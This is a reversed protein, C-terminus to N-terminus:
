RKKYELANRISDALERKKIPKMLYDKIGMAKAEDSTILESYGTCLIVPLDPRIEMLKLALRDGTLQPMTQDTIVLDFFDPQAKFLEFAKVSSMETVVEYGLSQIMLKSLKVMQEEDDVFLVRESGRKIDSDHITESLEECEYKPFLVTFTTGEGVKSTVTVDGGHNKVIGHVVALGIGTGESKAKTTFYPEFIHDIIGPDIGCGNDTVSMVLYEGPKINNYDITSDNGIVVDDLNISLVGGINHMAHAANTCLNMVVQEIQSPTALIMDSQTMSNYNIEITSPISARLMKLTEKILIGLKVPNQQMDTKRSFALIHKIIDKARYSAKLVEELSDRAPSDEPIDNELVLETFGSIASLINNFDHAIGGALRGISEMKRSQHLQEELKKRKEEAMVQKTIDSYIAVIEGSPLKFIYNERWGAIRHDKYYAPPFKEPRGTKWVRQFIDFLGFDIIGPFVDVVSKGLVDEKKINEIQEAWLNFDHFIFDEGDKVAKYIALGSNINNFLAKFRAESEQLAQTAERHGTIDSGQVMLFKAANSDPQITYFSFEVYRIEGNKRKIVSDYKNVMFNSKILNNKETYIKKRIEENPFLKQFFTDADSMEHHKYGTLREMAENYKLIKGGFSLVFTPVPSQTCMTSYFQLELGQVKDELLQVNRKLDQYSINEM